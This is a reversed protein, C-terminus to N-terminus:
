ALNFASPNDRGFFGTAGRIGYAKDAVNNRAEQEHLVPPIRFSIPKTPTM